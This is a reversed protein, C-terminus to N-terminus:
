LGMRRHRGCRGNEAGRLAAVIALVGTGSGMDLGRLGTVDRDLLGSAMLCTTAHHGTGFSMKPMIIVEAETAAPVHFPCPDHASRRSRCAHLQKGWMRELKATRHESLHRTRHRLAGAACGSRRQLRGAARPSPPKSGHARGSSFEFPFDALEATLFRRRNPTPQM